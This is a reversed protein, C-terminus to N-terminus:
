SLVARSALLSIGWARDTLRDRQRLLWPIEKAQLLRRHTQPNTTPLRSRRPRLVEKQTGGKSSGQPCFFRRSPGQSRGWGQLTLPSGQPCHRPRAVM